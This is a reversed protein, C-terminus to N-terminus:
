VFQVTYPIRAYCAIYVDHVPCVNCVNRVTYVDRFYMCCAREACEAIAHMVSMVFMVRM